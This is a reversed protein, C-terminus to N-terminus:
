ISAYYQRRQDTIEVDIVEIGTQQVPTYGKATAM